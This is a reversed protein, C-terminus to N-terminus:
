RKDILFTPIASGHGATVNLLAASSLRTLCGHMTTGLFIFPDADVFLNHMELKNEVFSPYIESAVNVKEQVVTPQDLAHKVAANWNDASTEWGLVVGKGGYADNPKLVLRDRAEIIFRILDITNNNYNTNRESVVRTWPIHEGIARKEDDTFLHANAEDSLFALSCKKYLLLAQFSNSICVAGDRLAQFIPNKSGMRQFLEQGLVRKYILDIRFDGVWLKGNRYEMERPDCLISDVGHQEFWEKCLRHENRTPVDDWDAIAIQPKVPGRSGLWQTYTQLLADLLHARVGLPRTSYRQQFKQFIPLDLFMSALVDEYAMGAPTEANYEIFSLTGHDLSYFSDLRSTSWPVQSPPHLMMMEEEWPELFFQKRLQPDAMCADHSKKFAHLIIETEAKLYDFQQATYFHPRLVTCLPRDGFFLKRDRMLTDMQGYTEAATQDNLLNHYYETAERKM